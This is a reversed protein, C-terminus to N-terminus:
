LLGDRMKSPRAPHDRLVRFFRDEDDNYSFGIMNGFRIDTL